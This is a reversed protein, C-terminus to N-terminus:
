PRGGELGKLARDTKDSANLWDLTDEVLEIKGTTWPVRDVCAILRDLEPQQLEVVAGPRMARQKDGTQLLDAEKPAEDSAAKFARVIAVDKRREDRSQRGQADNLLLNRGLHMAMWCLDFREGIECKITRTM